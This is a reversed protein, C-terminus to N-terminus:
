ERRPAQAASVLAAVAEGHASLWQEFSMLEPHLERTREVSRGACYHANFDHKYQFMNALDAAGPFGLRAYDAFPMPVHRVPEGLARALGAAMEAGTLHEGAIGVIGGIFQGSGQFIGLACAGIDAAAIGPLRREGMPLVFDLVGDAGRRPGMGFHILNDWYFSTRLFTTPLERFFADADGKADLHPVKYRQMLTPMRVDHLPVQQRTDELTSWVVHRAGSRAAARAINAAQRLEREPSHHEWYNTVAFVGYAGRLAHDLSAADDLDAVAVEVGLAALARAAAGDPRRTIARVAFSRARDALIARVLGGGQAGTAGLVAILPRTTM